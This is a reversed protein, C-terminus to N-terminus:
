CCVHVLHGRNHSADRASVLVSENVVCSYVREAATDGSGQLAILGRFAPAAIRHAASGSAHPVFASRRRPVKILWPVVRGEAADSFRVNGNIIDSQGAGRRSRRPRAAARGPRPRAACRKRRRNSICCWVAARSTYAADDLARRQREAAARDRSCASLDEARKASLAGLDTQNLDLRRWSVTRRPLRSHGASRCRRARRAGPHRFSRFDAAALQRAGAASSRPRLRATQDGGTSAAFAVLSGATRYTRAPVEAPEPFVARPWREAQVVDGESRGWLRQWGSSGDGRDVHQRGSSQGLGAYLCNVARWSMHRTGIDDTLRLLEGGVEAKKRSLLVDWGLWDFAPDRDTAKAPRLELLNKGCIMTSRM